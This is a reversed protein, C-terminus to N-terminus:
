HLHSDMDIILLIIDAPWLDYHIVLKGNDKPGYNLGSWKVNQTNPNTILIKNDHSVSNRVVRGFNLDSPWKYPDEGYNKEILEKNKEYFNVILSQSFGFMPKELIGMPLKKPPKENFDVDEIEYKIKTPWKLQNFFKDLLDHPYIILNTEKQKSTLKINDNKQYKSPNESKFFVLTSTISVLAIIYSAIDDFCKHISKKIEM